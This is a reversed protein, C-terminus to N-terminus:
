AVAPCRMDSTQRLTRRLIVRLVSAMSVTSVRPPGALLTFRRQSASVRRSADFTCGATPSGPQPLLKQFDFPGPVTITPGSPLAQSGTIRQNVGVGGTPPEGAVQIAGPQDGLLRWIYRQPAGDSGPATFEYGCQWRGDQTGPHSAVIEGDMLPKLKDESVEKEAWEDIEAM